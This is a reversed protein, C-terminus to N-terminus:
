AQGLFESTTVGTFIGVVIGEQSKRLVAEEDFTEGYHGWLRIKQTQEDLNRIRVIRLKHSSTQSAYDFSGVHSIVGIM